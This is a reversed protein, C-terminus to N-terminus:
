LIPLDYFEKQIAIIKDSIIESIKANILISNEIEDSKIYVGKYRIEYSTRVNTYTVILSADYISVDVRTILKTSEGHTRNINKLPTEELLKYFINLEKHENNKM